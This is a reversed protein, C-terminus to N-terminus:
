YLFGFLWLPVRNGSGYEVGDAAVFSDTIGAIQSGDKGRGGVEFTFRGDVLFDGGGGPSEVLHRFKVQNYFFSERLNGREAVGQSLFNALNVNELYIKDPKQLRSVGRSDRQLHMTLGAEQLAYLYSLLTNRTIGIRESLKSINPTFPVSEAIIMLLQKLKHVHAVGIGRLLPLEVELIFKVVEDLRLKYSAIGEKFFPYYGHELYSEFHALPKIQSVISASIEINNALVDELSMVPFETGLTMNLYERFSLGQMNYSLARRSLDARANLIELLSSGSFVVKLGPYDDYINKLERSWDPYKHVEDLFIHHGGLKVFTDALEVLRRTSFWLDDLSVYLAGADDTYHQRLYQLMMTTKGIGRAGKLGVLRAQWEIESLLSRSFRVPIEAVKRRCKEVLHEM